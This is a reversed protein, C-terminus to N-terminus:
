RCMCLEASASRIDDVVMIFSFSRDEFCGTPYSFGIRVPGVWRNITMNGGVRHRVFMPMYYQRDDRPLFRSRAESFSGVREDGLIRDEENSAAPPRTQRNGM